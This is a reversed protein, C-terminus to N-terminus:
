FETLVEDPDPRKPSRVMTVLLLTAVCPLISAVIVVPQFSFKDTVVGIMFTSILTGVGAATGSLGSVSAVARTHFVDAPLALFMTSCAGYAFSAWAFLLILLLYNSVFAAAILLLMSPGFVGLVMRRARGVPWGKAIWYSSLAGGCFNGLDAGLFPAWFGLVSQELRFGRSLLYLAFWEAVLYWYPDLLFRGLMIGWTQRYRLLRSWPTAPLAASTPPQPARGERIYDLEEPSLRPHKEPTQYLARWALLWFFGLLGTILFAPRWSGFTHHLYLVLFPAIAGGISSGSDFLAVAWGRERAPFWESVAKTAGPWNAAEGVGLLFRFIRFGAIGQALATLAAISSYFAVSLSLGRRTGLKDVVRGSVSQFITYAVRFSILVTAFDTNTWKYEDKLFPALVSLTQRDLYNIVTSLFLLGGIWWRLRRIPAQCTSASVLDAHM